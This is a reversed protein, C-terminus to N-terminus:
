VGIGWGVLGGYLGGELLIWCVVEDTGVLAVADSDLGVVKERRDSEIVSGADWGRNHMARSM